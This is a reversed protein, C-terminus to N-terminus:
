PKDDEDKARAKGKGRALALKGKTPDAKEETLDPQDAKKPTHIGFFVASLDEALFPARSSTITMGRPFSHDKAPDYVIATPSPSTVDAYALVSHLKDKYKKAEVGKLVSFGDGKETWPLGQYSAKGSDLQTLLGTKMNRLQVGNGIQGQADIVLALL